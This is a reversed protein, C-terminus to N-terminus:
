PITLARNFADHLAKGEPHAKSFGIYYDREPGISRDIYDLGGLEDSNTQILYSCVSVECVFLDIRGLILKKLNQEEPRSSSVVDIKALVSEERAKEFSQDYRYGGSVGIRYPALDALTKWDIASSKRKFFVDRVKNIPKSFYLWQEREENRTLSLIAAIKGAKVMLQCRKWPTFFIDVEKGMAAATKRVTKLDTGTIRGNETYEFPPYEVTCVRFDAAWVSLSFISLFAWLFRIHM